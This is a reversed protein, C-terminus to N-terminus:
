RREAEIDFVAAMPDGGRLEGSFIKSTVARGVAAALARDTTEDALPPIRKVTNHSFTERPAEGARMLGHPDQGRKVVRIGRRLLKRYMAVGKDTHGLNEWGHRTVKGQSTWADWDGPARQRQEYTPEGTQGVDFPGMSTRGERTARDMLGNRTPHPLAQEVDDWGITWCNHDDIPVVWNTTGGRRDFVLIQPPPEPLSRVM